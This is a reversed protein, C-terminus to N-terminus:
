LDYAEVLVKLCVNTMNKVSVEFSFIQLSMKNELNVLNDVDCDLTSIRWPWTSPYKFSREVSVYIFWPLVKGSVIFFTHFSKANCSCLSLKLM